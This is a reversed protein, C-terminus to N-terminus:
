LIEMLLKDFDLEPVKFDDFETRYKKFTRETELSKIKFDITISNKSRKAYNMTTKYYLEEQEGKVFLYDCYNVPNIWYSNELTSAFLLFLINVEMGKKLIEELYGPLKEVYDSGSIWVNLPTFIESWDKGTKYWHYCVTPYVWASQNTYLIGISTERLGREGHEELGHEVIKIFEIKDSESFINKELLINVYKNYFKKLNEEKAAIMIAYRVEFNRKILELEKEEKIKNVNNLDKSINYRGSILPNFNYYLNQSNRPSSKFNLALLKQIYILDTIDNCVAFINKNHKREIYFTELNYKKKSHVVGRGLTIIDYYQQKGRELEEKRANKVKRNLLLKELEELKKQEDEQYYIQQKEFGYEKSKEKLIELKKYFYSDEVEEDAQIFPVIYTINQNQDGNGSVNAIVKGKAPLQAAMANGLIDVSIERECNLAFRAKFNALESSNLAGGMEQSAFILHFGTARGLKIISHILSRITGEERGAEEYMQQFEDILVVVRPLVVHFRKRFDSLKQIGLKALLNQRAKMCTYVHELMSVVYKIESTAACTKLHPTYVHSMYRSLEVKKFDVLYLDLEWPAYEQLMTMILQNLFVSKGSGTRGVIVAHVADDSLAIAKIPEQGERNNEEKDFLGPRLNVGSKTTHIWIKETNNDKRYIHKFEPIDEKRLEGSVLKKMINCSEEVTMINDFCKIFELPEPCIVEEQYIEEKVINEQFERMYETYEYIDRKPKKNRDILIDIASKGM